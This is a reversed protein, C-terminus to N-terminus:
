WNFGYIGAGYKTFHDSDGSFTGIKLYDNTKFDKTHSLQEPVHPNM